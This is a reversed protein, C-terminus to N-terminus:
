PIIGKSNSDMYVEVADTIITVEGATLGGGLFFCAAQKTCSNSSGGSGNNASLIFTDSNPIGGSAATNSDAVKNIYLIVNAADVRVGVFMGRSDTNATNSTVSGNLRLQADGSTRARLYTGPNTFHGFDNKAEDVDTRLYIGMCADNQTYNTAHSTPNYNTNLYHLSKGTFGELAVFALTSVNTADYTGPNIWNKLAESDGNTTQAFLYFLDLQSWVGGSVLTAVMTNQAEAIAASPPTTFSNYVATYEATWGAANTPHPIVEYSQSFNTLPIFLLLLYLLIKKM